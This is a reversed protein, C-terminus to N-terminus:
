SQSPKLKGLMIYERLSYCLLSAIIQWQPIDQGDTLFDERGIAKLAAFYAACNM